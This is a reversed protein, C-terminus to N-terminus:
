IYVHYSIRLRVDMICTRASFSSVVSFSTSMLPPGLCSQSPLSALGQQWSRPNWRYWGGLFCLGPAAEINNRRQHRIITHRLEQSGNSASAEQLWHPFPTQSAKFLRWEATNPLGPLYLPQLCCAMQSLSQEQQQSGDGRFWNVSCKKKQKKAQTDNPKLAMRWGGLSLSPSIVFTVPLRTQQCCCSWAQNIHWAGSWIGMAVEHFTYGTKGM